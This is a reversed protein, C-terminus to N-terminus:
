YWNRPLTDPMDAVADQRRAHPVTPQNAGVPQPKHQPQPQPAMNTTPREVRVVNARKVRIERGQAHHPGKTVRVHVRFGDHGVVIAECANFEVQRLGQLRLASGKALHGTSGVVVVAAGAVLTLVAADVHPAAAPPTVPARDHRQAGARRTQPSSAQEQSSSGNGLPPGSLHDHTVAVTKGGKQHGLQVLVRGNEEGQVIGKAGNMEARRLGTLWVTTGPRWKDQAAVHERKQKVIAARRQRNAQDHSKQWKKFKHVLIQPLNCECLAGTNENICRNHVIGGCICQKANRVYNGATKVDDGCVLCEVRGKGPVTGVSMFDAKWMRCQACLWM